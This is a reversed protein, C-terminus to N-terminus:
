AVEVKQGFNLMSEQAAELVRTIKLAERGDNVPQKGESVCELFHALQADLPKVSGVDIPQFGSGERSLYRLRDKDAYDDFAAFMREAVVVVDRRKFPYLWSGTGSAFIGEPFMLDLTVIDEIGQKLYSAGNASLWLPYDGVIGSLISIDHPLIDWLVSMDSRVPGNSFGFSRLFLLRGFVGAKIDDRIRRIGPNFRHIDSVMLIRGSSGATRVLDEVEHSTFGAPKEVVVHKGAELAAKAIQYHTSGHTVIAVADLAPDSLVKKYDTTTAPNVKLNVQSLSNAITAETSSCVMRVDAGLAAFTRLYNTGWRGLGIVGVSVAM